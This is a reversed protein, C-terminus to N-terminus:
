DVRLAVVPDVRTASRAPVLCALLASVALVGVSALTVRLDTPAIGYVSARLVGSVLRALVIGAALGLLPFMLGQRTVLQVVQRPTAGLALRIGIERTRQSVAHAVVAYIGSIALVLALFGFGGFFWADFRQRSWSAGILADLTRVDRLPADPDVGRVAQRIAPIVRSPEGTTRVFYIRWGYTFQAYPTYFSARNPDTDLPEYMVDGVIGIIEASSDPRDFNSGGGFWVRQGIPDANPFFRRAATESIVTVRPQGAVDSPSFTRGRIVRIGLTRFHDPGVYHRLIPPALNPEVVPRGVIELTSRATGQLPAGGDVSASAVGPVATIAELMQSVYAPAQAVGVRAEPPRISFTLVHGADVGLETGRMRRFSEIMLGGAVLLVVALAAEAAVILGHARPRVVSGGSSSVARGGERLAAQLNGRVTRVVPALAVGLSTGAALLLGFLGVVADFSPTAFAGLSGYFNAPGWVDSPAGLLGITPAAIVTGLLVGAAVPLADKVLYYGVIRGWSSGLALRVAAERRRSEARALLLSAVNVAALLYLLGVASAFTMVAQKVSPHTRAENLPVATASPRDGPTPDSEPLTAYIQPGVTALEARAADINVNERLRAVVSIFDQDTVLYDPYTLVPAMTTPFWLQARDTLGRFGAPMVGVVTLPRGNVVITRGILGADSAYRRRWLDHGVVVVAHGGVGEDEDPAFGRGYLARTGLASFYSPSVFEGQVPEADEKGTLTIEASTYNAVDRLSRAQSRLLQVRPYSWRARHPPGGNPTHSSYVVVLQRAASFPPPRWLTASLLAFASVCITSGIATISVVAAVLGRDKRLLM